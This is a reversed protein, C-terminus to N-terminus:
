SAQRSRTRGQIWRRVFEGSFTADQGSRMPRLLDEAFERSVIELTADRQAELV